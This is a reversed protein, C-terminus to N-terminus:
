NCRTPTDTFERCTICLCLMGELALHSDQTEKAVDAPSKSPSAITGFCASSPTAIAATSVMTPMKELAAPVRFVISHISSHMRVYTGPWSGIGNRWSCALRLLRGTPAAPDTCRDM